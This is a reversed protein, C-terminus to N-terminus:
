LEFLINHICKNYQKKKIMIVKDNKARKEYSAHVKDLYLHHMLDSGSPPKNDLEFEKM